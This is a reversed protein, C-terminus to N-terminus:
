RRGESLGSRSADEDPIRLALANDWRAIVPKPM